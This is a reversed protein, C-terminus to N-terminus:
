NTKSTNKATDETTTELKKLLKIINTSGPIRYDINSDSLNEKMTQYSAKPIANILERVKSLSGDYDNVKSWKMILNKNQRKDEYKVHVKGFHSLVIQMTCPNAFYLIDFPHNCGNQQLMRIILEFEKRSEKNEDEGADCFILILGNRISSRLLQYKKRIRYISGADVPVVNIDRSWVCLSDLFKIYYYEEQGECIITVTSKSYNHPKLYTPHWTRSM